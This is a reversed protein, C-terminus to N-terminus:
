PPPELEVYGKEPIARPAFEADDGFAPKAAGYRKPLTSKSGASSRTVKREFPDHEQATESTMDRPEDLTRSESKAPRDGRDVRAAPLIAALISEQHKNWAAPVDAERPFLATVSVCRLRSTAYNEISGTTQRGLDQTVQLGSAEGVLEAIHQGNGDYNVIGVSRADKLHLVLVPKFDALIRVIAKTEPASSSREGSRRSRLPKWNEGPFNRNLDVGQLNYPSRGELGDPNPDRIVLVSSGRLLEQHANLHRSLEEVLGVSQPEDGHLSALVVVHRPGNGLIATEIPRGDTSRYFRSWRPEHLLNAQSGALRYNTTQRKPSPAEMRASRLDGRNRRASPDGLTPGNGSPTSEFTQNPEEPQSLPSEPKRLIQSSEDSSSSGPPSASEGLSPTGNTAPTPGMTSPPTGGRMPTACGSVWLTACFASVALRKM